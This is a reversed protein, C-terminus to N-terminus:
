KEYVLRVIASSNDDGVFRCMYIGNAIEAPMSVTNSGSNVLYEAVQRGEISFLVFKGAVPANITIIGSTPNPFISLVNNVESAETVSEGPKAVVVTIGRSSFCGTSLTYTITTAAISNGTVIGTAAGVSAVGANASSWTGGGPSCTLTRTSGNVVTLSGNINGPNSNVILTIAKYCGASLTYSIKVTGGAVGTVIGTGAGVTARAANSSSWAGGVTVNALNTTAGPCVSATGTIDAVATNVTVVFTSFCGGTTRYTVTANGLSLGTLLGTNAYITAIATNNSSWTGGSTANALTANTQGACVVGDGTISTLAANVTVIASSFCGTTSEYSITTTGLSVPTVVGTSSNITAVAGNTSTWTGSFTASSLNSTSGMCVALTGTIGSPTASVTVVRTARCGGTLTYSITTTGAGVGTVLGTASNITARAPLSSTWVGGVSVSSLATTGGICTAAVGTIAAPTTNVTVVRTLICGAASHYTITTTAASVGTVVGTGSVISAVGADNSSWTGGGPNGTLTTSSGTCLSASGGISTPIANVTVISTAFCGGPITYTIRVTGASVGTVVGTGAVVTARAVNSSSWTGGGTANALTTTLGACVSAAGTIPTSLATTVTVETTAFCGAGLSYTINVTGAGVGTVVGTGAVVTARTLNSSSWTGGPTANSLTTTNGVCTNASGTNGTVSTVTAIATTVCGTGLTYTINSNGDAVGTLLGSNLDITAKTIDSSTWTGGASASSLSSTGGPCTSLTGSISAPLPNVTVVETAQCGSGLHYTITSTGSAVGTIVGTGMVVTANAPTSSSWTGGLTANSFTTTAGVCVTATGTIVSPVPNVTAIAARFCGTGITYTINTNGAAIGSVLGTVSNITAKTMDSSTWTGGATASTLATTFGECVSLTGTIVAPRANITVDQTVTCGSIHYTITSTGAAVGTVVGTGVVVTANAPTSSSWTGGATTNSLTTTSGECVTATGTIAAPATNVTITITRTCGASATYTITPNGAAVGTVVGTNLDVTALAINSSAWTGGAVAHTLTTNSGVCVTATGGIGALAPSVTVQAVTTCSSRTYTINTTGALVGTVVGTGSVVSANAPVSSAWTGGTPTSSLTTTGGACLALSGTIPTVGVTVVRTAACGSSNLTFSITTTGASVGGVSGGASITGVAPTSSSWTGAGGSGTFNPSTNGVCIPNPTGGAIGPLGNVTVQVFSYCGVNITYSILATGGGVGTVIGTNIDVTARTLNSSSWTGGPLAHELDTTSLSCLVATGTISALTANVTGEIISFCGNATYTINASGVGQGTIVGTAANITLVGINSSSWTGGATSNDLTSNTQGVCVIPNGTNASLAATVTLVKTVTCGAVTYSINVTGMSVGTAVGTGADITAILVDSTSWTGGVTTNAYVKTSGACVANVTVANTIAAPNANVTVTALSRCSPNIVYSIVVTGASVGSVVGTGLVVTARAPTASSWTGGGTSNALTTTAGVCVSQTGTISTAMTNSVTVVLTTFCGPSVIYSITTTGSSIGGVLGTTSNVTGIAPTSSSWTGGPTANTYTATTGVCLTSSGTVSAVTNVTVVESRICGATTTYTIEVTGNSVGTVVGTGAVVTAKTVDGSAWTGGTPTTSLTTTGGVCSQLSGTFAAPLANVTVVTTANCGTSLLYTIISTGSTVGTVVGTLSGITAVAVNGSEWSLGGPSVNALTTTLGQCVSATGTIALPSPNVTLVATTFCGTSLTYTITANGSSVASVEGTNINVSAITINSSSWTGGATASTLTTLANQCLSLTGTIAAPLPLVTVIQTANCGTSLIYTIIATGASVGTVVGTSSGVTAVALDSSQWSLGGPSANSLTTTAGVCVTATGTTALALPNVTAIVTKFCSGSVIYSITSNGLGVGTLVGTSIDITANAPVTSSWTGGPTANSLASTLGICVSASGTISAVAANVTVTTTRTCGGTANYSILVTGASLGTVVGSTVGVTARSTNGSSWTGGISTNILTTTQGVCVISDGSNPGAGVSLTTTRSCGTHTYSIVATGQAVGTVVGSSTGVTAKTVDASSWSGGGPSSGLTVSAGECVVSPGSIATPATKIIMTFTKFCGAGITYSITTTGSTLATVLGTSNGISAKVTDTSSWTGGATANLLTTTDGPCLSTLGTINAVSSNVTVIITSFCGPTSTYTVTATGAGIGTLIGSSAYVTVVATNSSSWTGGSTANSLPKTQGVCLIADGTIAGLSTNVTVIATRTCGSAHTYSITATGLSVGTVVGSVSVTAVSLNDSSWTCGTTASSLVKTSGVCMSLSGTIVAPLVGVSVNVKRRCGTSLTYSISATGGVNGTVVGSGSVSAVSTNSSTWSGGMTASSLATTSGACTFTTGTIADPLPNVTIQRTAFCGTGLSYTITASGAAMGTVFGTTDVISATSPTSSSWTGGSTTNSLTATGTVCVQSAGNITSPLSNIVVTASRFCGVNVMYTINTSGSAIGYVVGSGADVTGKTTNSSSWSGGSTANSLTTSTGICIATTGTISPLASNVTVQTTTYCGGSNTAYTVNANGSSIGTITGTSASVTFIAPDASTWIGGSTANALTSNTQGVCVIPNGTNAPLTANVSITRTRICGNSGTYTISTTGSGIGEILGGSESITAVSPSSSQWTGGTTTSGLTSSNGICVTAPGTIVGPLPNVTVIAGYATDETTYSIITTGASIGTLLGTSVNITARLTNASSWSGGPSASTLTSNSGICVTLTGSIGTASAKAFNLLLLVLLVNSLKKMIYM